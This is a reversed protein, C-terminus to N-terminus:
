QQQRVWRCCHGGLWSAVFSFIQEIQDLNSADTVAGTDPSESPTPPQNTTKLLTISSLLGSIVDGLNEMEKDVDKTNNKLVADIIKRARLVEKADSNLSFEVCKGHLQKLNPLLGSISEPEAPDALIFDCSLKEVLNEIIEVTM